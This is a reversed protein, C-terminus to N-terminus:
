RSTSWAFTMTCAGAIRVVVNGSAKIRSTFRGAVAIALNSDKVTHAAKFRGNSSVESAPVATIRVPLTKTIALVKAPCGLPFTGRTAFGTVREANGQKTVTFVVTTSSLKGKWTGTKPASAGAVATASVLAFALTALLLTAFAKM